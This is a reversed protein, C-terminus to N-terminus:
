QDVECKPLVKRLSQRGRETVMTEEVILIELNELGRLNELGADTVKTQSLNLIQLRPVGRLFRLGDDDIPTGHLDLYYLHELGMLRELAENEIGPCEGCNVMAIRNFVAFYPQLGEPVLNPGTYFMTVIAGMNELEHGKRAETSYDTWIDMAFQLTVAVFICAITTVVRRVVRVSM